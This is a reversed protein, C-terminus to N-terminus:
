RWHLQPESRDHVASGQRWQGHRHTHEAPAVRGLALAPRLAPRHRARRGEALEHLRHRRLRDAYRRDIDDRDLDDLDDLSRGDPDAVPGPSEPALREGAARALPRPPGAGVHDAQSTVDTVAVRRAQANTRAAQVAAAKAQAAVVKQELGALTEQKDAVSSHAHVFAAVLAALLVAAVVAATILVRKADGRDGAGWRRGRTAGAPLLNVARM